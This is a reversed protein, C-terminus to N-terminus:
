QQQDQENEQNPWTEKSGKTQVSESLDGHLHKRVGTGQYRGREQTDSTQHTSRLESEMRSESPLGTGYDRGKHIEHEEM